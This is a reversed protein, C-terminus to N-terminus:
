GKASEAVIPNRLVGLQESTIVCVDGPKMWLPPKRTFGVGAPTGTVIIDGPSLTMSESVISVLSAVDFILDDISAKQVVQGNLQTEFHLGKCGPPLEDASIFESGFAGTADFNKGVTWQTTKFQFDRVSADNFLSYGAIHQLASQKSIHRGAKGVVAVLEGEYDLQDSLRPKVIPAMHGILTSIFRVFVAPYDPVKFGTELSHDLYNLGICIIKGPHTLPPLFEIRSLDIAHGRKLVDAAARLAAPGQMLLSGLGGPFGDDGVGLGHYQAAGTRVALGTGQSGNFSIFRMANERPNKALTDNAAGATTRCSRTGWM